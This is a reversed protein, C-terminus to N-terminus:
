LDLERKLTDLDPGGKECYEILSATAEEIDAYREIAQLLALDNTSVVAALPKGHKTITAREAAISVRNVIDGLRERAESVTFTSTM